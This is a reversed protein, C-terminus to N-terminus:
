PQNTLRTLAGETDVLDILWEGGAAHVVVAYHRGHETFIVQVRQEGKLSPHLPMTEVVQIDGVAMKSWDPGTKSWVLRLLDQSRPTFHQLYSEEDLSAAAQAAARVPDSPDSCAGLTIV